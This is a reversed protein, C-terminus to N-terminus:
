CEILVAFKDAKDAIDAGELETTSSAAEYDISNADLFERTLSTKIAFNVNQAIDGSYETMMIADMKSTIVGVVNGAHDLLPGGSNGPQVPAVIQM